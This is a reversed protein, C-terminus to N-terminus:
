FCFGPLDRQKERSPRVVAISAADGDTGTERGSWGGTRGYWYTSILVDGFCMWAYRITKQQNVFGSLWSHHTPCGKVTMFGIKIEHIFRVNNQEIISAFIFIDFAYSHSKNAPLQELLLLVPYIYAPKQWLGFICPFYIKGLWNAM